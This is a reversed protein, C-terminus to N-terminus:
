IFVDLVGIKWHAFLERNQKAFEVMYKAASSKRGRLKKYKKMSWRVLM